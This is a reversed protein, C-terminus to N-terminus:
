NNTHAQHVEYEGTEKFPLAVRKGKLDSFIKIGSNSRVVLQFMDSYLECIMRATSDAILDAQAAAVNVRNDALLKMSQLSGRTEFVEISIDDHHRHAVTQLAKLLRYAEGTSPGAAISVKFKQPPALLWSGIGVLLTIVIIVRVTRFLM